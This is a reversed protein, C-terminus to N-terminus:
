LKEELLAAVEAALSTPDKQFGVILGGKSFSVGSKGGPECIFHKLGTKLASKGTEDVCLSTAGSIADACFAGVDHSSTVSKDAGQKIQSSLEYGCKQKFDQIADNLKAADGETKGLRKFYVKNSIAKSDVKDARKPDFFVQQPTSGPVLVSMWEGPKQTLILKRKGLVLKFYLHEFRNSTDISLEMPAEDLATRTGSIEAVFKNNLHSPAIKLVIGSGNSFYQSEGRAVEGALNGLSFVLAFTFIKYYTM